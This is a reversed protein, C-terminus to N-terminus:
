SEGGRRKPPMRIVVATADDPTASKLILEALASPPTDAAFASWQNPNPLIGDSILVLTDTPQLTVHSVSERGQTVGLGPPPGSAGVPSGRHRRLLWSPQAGWKFLWVIGSEPNLEALDVTVAGGRGTLALQSNVSGLAAGPALGAQLMQRILGVTERSQRAAESGTGMGDCLLVYFKGCPASFAIVRDGDARHKGRSRASVQVRRRSVVRQLMPLRDALERLADSLFGYQQVLAMRCEEQKARFSQMRRLLGRCRSVEQAATAKRRKQELCGIRNPCSECISRHLEQSLAQADPPPATWELLQHQLGTLVRAMGELQVQAAGVRGRRPTKRPMVAGLFGGCLAAACLLWRANGSLTMVLVLSAALSVGRTFEGRPLLRELYLHLAAAPTLLMWHSGLDAGVCMALAWGAPLAGAAFGAAGAGLCPSRCALALTGAGWFLCQGAVGDTCSALGSLGALGVQIALTQGEPSTLAGIGAATLACGGFRWGRGEPLLLALLFASVTWGLGTLGAKGWLLLYGLASGLVAAVANVGRFRLVLGMTVPQPSGGVSVGSLLVGGGFCGAMEASRRVGPKEMLREGRRKVQTLMSEVSTMM